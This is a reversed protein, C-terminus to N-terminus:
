PNRMLFNQAISFDVKESIIYKYAFATIHENLYIVNEKNPFILPGTIEKIKDALIYWIAKNEEIFKYIPRLDV